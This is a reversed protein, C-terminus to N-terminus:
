KQSPSQGYFPEELPNKSPLQEQQEGQESFISFISSLLGKDLKVPPASPDPILSSESSKDLDPPSTPILLAERDANLPESDAASKAESNLLFPALFSPMMWQYRSQFIGLHNKEGPEVTEESGPHLQYKDGKNYEERIGAKIKAYYDRDAYDYFSRSEQQDHPLGNKIYESNRVESTLVDFGAAPMSVTLLSSATPNEGKLTITRLMDLDKYGISALAETLYNKVDSDSLHYSRILHYTRYSLSAEPFLTYKILEQGEPYEHEYFIKCFDNFKPM